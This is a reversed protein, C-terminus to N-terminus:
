PVILIGAFRDAFRVTLMSLYKSPLLETLFKELCFIHLVQQDQHFLKAIRTGWHNCTVQFSHEELLSAFDSSDRKFVWYVNIIIPIQRHPLPHFNLL